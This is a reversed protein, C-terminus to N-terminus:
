KFVIPAPTGYGDHKLVLSNESFKLFVKGPAKIKFVLKALAGEGEFGGIKGGLLSIKGLGETKPKQIWLNILSKETESKIFELTESSYLLSIDFANVLEKSRIKIEVRIERGAKSQGPDPALYLQAAQLSFPFFVLFIPIFYRTM